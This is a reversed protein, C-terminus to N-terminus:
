TVEESFTDGARRREKPNIGKCEREEKLARICVRTYRLSFFAACGLSSVFLPFLFFFRPSPFYFSLVDRSTRTIRKLFFHVHREPEKNKSAFPLTEARPFLYLSRLSLSLVVPSYRLPLPLLNSLLARSPM